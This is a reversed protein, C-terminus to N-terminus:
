VEAVQHTLANWLSGVTAISFTDSYLQVIDDSGLGYLSALYYVCRAVYACGQRGTISYTEVFVSAVIALLRGVDIIADGGVSGDSFVRDFIREYRNHYLGDGTSHSLLRRIVMKDSNLVRVRSVVEELILVDGKHLEGIAYAVCPVALPERPCYLHRCSRLKRYVPRWEPPLCITRYRKGSVTFIRSGNM